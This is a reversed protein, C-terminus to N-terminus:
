IFDVVFKTFDVIIIIFIDSVGYNHRSNEDTVKVTM